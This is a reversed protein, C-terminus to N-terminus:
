GVLCKKYRFAESKKVYCFRVFRPKVQVKSNFLNVVSSGIALAAFWGDIPRPSAFSLRYSLGQSKTGRLECCCCTADRRRRIIGLWQRSPSQTVRWWRCRCWRRLSSPRPWRHPPFRRRHLPSPARLHIFSHTQWPIESSLPIWHLQPLVSISNNAHM